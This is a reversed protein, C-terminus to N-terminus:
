ALGLIYDGEEEMENNINEEVLVELLCLKTEDNNQKCIDEQKNEINNIEKM